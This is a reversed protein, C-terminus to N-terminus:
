VGSHVSKGQLIRGVIHEFHLRELKGSPDQTELKAWELPSDNNIWNRLNDQLIKIWKPHQSGLFLLEAIAEESFNGLQTAVYCIEYLDM